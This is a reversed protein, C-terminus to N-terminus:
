YMPKVFGNLPKFLLTVNLNSLLPLSVKSFVQFFSNRVYAWPELWRVFLARAFWSFSSLHNLFSSFLHSIIKLLKVEFTISISKCFVIMQFSSPSFIFGVGLFVPLKTSWDISSTSVSIPVVKGSPLRAACEFAKLIHLRKVWCNREVIMPMWLQEDM